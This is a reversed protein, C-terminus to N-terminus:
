RAAPSTVEAEKKVDAQSVVPKEAPTEASRAPALQQGVRFAAAQLAELDHRLAVLQAESAPVAVGAAIAAASTAGSAKKQERRAKAAALAEDLRKAVADIETKLTSAHHRAIGNKELAELRADTAQERERTSGLTNPLYRQITPHSKAHAWGLGKSALYHAGYIVALSAAVGATQWAFKTACTQVTAASPVWSPMTFTPLSPVQFSVDVSTPVTGASPMSQASSSVLLMVSLAFASKRSVM